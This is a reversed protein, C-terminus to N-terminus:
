MLFLFRVSQSVHFKVFMIIQKQQSTILDAPSVVMFTNNDTLPPNRHCINKEISNNRNESQNLSSELCESSFPFTKIPCIFAYKSSKLKTAYKTRFQMNVDYKPFLQICIEANKLNIAYKTFILTM